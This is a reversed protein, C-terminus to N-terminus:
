LNRVFTFDLTYLKIKKCGTPAKSGWGSLFEEFLTIRGPLMVLDRGEMVSCVVGCRREDEGPQHALLGKGGEEEVELSPFEVVGVPGESRHRLGPFVALTVRRVDLLQYGLKEVKGLHKDIAIPKMKPLLVISSDHPIDLQRGPGGSRIFKDSKVSHYHFM